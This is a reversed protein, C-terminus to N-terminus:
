KNFILINIFGDNYWKIILPEKADLITTDSVDYGFGYNIQYFFSTRYKHHIEVM